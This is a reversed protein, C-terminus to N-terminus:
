LFEFKAPNKYADYYINTVNMGVLSYIDVLNEERVIQDAMKQSIKVFDSCTGRSEPVPELEFYVRYNCYPKDQFVGSYQRVGIIQRM